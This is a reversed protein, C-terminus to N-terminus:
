FFQQKFSGWVLILFSMVFGWKHNFFPLFAKPEIWCLIQLFILIKTLINMTHSSQNRQIIIYHNWRKYKFFTQLNKISDTGQALLKIDCSHGLSNPKDEYFLEIVQLWAIEILSQTDRRIKVFFIFSSISNFFELSEEGYISFSSESIDNHKSVLM